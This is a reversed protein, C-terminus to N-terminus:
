QSREETPQSAPIRSAGERDPLDKAAVPNPSLAGEARLRELQEAGLGLLSGLTRDTDEGLLPARRSPVFHEGDLCWPLAGVRMSGMYPHEIRAAAARPAAALREFSRVPSAPIGLAAIREAAAEADRAAIWEALATALAEGEAGPAGVLRALRDREAAARAAVAVWSDDGAAAFHGHPHFRHHGNAPAEVEGLLQAELLPESMTCSVCEVQSLDIWAGEGSRRRRYIAALVAALAHAAANPDALAMNFLGMPDSDPYRVLAELGALGSMVPAYGGAGSMPGDQGALSMSLMVIGPNAASLEAYGLGRRSLAGPRMNEVVVDCEAALELILERGRPETLNVGISRKGRNVQNFYFSLELPPGELRKGEVIPGGRARASDPRSEHEVKLVEAGLDRLAATVTPGSWVWTFDLVRLGALPARSRAAGARRGGKAAPASAAIRFPLGPLRAGGPGGEALFGRHALQPDELSERVHRIPAIPFGFEEGLALLEERSRAATWARLHRDAEEAHQHAVERADEMEPRQSWEPDGMAAVLAKWESQQRCMITVAGDACPFIAAPYSGGSKSARAGDRHWPREYPVFNAAIMGVYYALVDEAAVQLLGAPQGELQQLLAAIAAAAGEVGLLADPIDFPLSLPEREPDGISWSVGSAASTVLPSGARGLGGSSRGFQTLDVVPRDGERHRLLRRAVATARGDAPDEHLVDVVVVSAGAALLEAREDAPSLLRKGRNLAERVPPELRERASSAWPLSVATVDAGMAALLWGCYSGATRGALELVSAGALLASVEEGRSGGQSDPGPM